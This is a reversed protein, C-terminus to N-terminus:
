AHAFFQSHLQGQGILNSFLKYNKREYRIRGAIIAPSIKLEQAALQVEAASTCDRIKLWSAHPILQNQAWSDAEKEHSSSDAADLDDVYWHGGKKNLHLRIHALEHFLCFWFNDLRNHRLSLGIVPTGDDLLTAAGDLHTKPLHAELVLAIGSKELFGKALRPGEELFSLSVLTRMFSDDLSNQRYHARPLNDKAVNVIRATWALLAYSDFRAGRVNRRFMAIQVDQKQLNRLLYRALETSNKRAEEATGRFFPLLWKRKVIEEWPFRSADPVDKEAPALTRERLLVHAPIGLKEHLTRILSLTLPRKGSLIESVKARSGMLPVLDKPQLRAQEMRFKIADIPDPPLVPHNQEEYLEVLASLLELEDTAQVDHPASILQEIRALAAKYDTETKILSKVNSM